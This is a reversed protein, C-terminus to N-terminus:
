YAPTGISPAQSTQAFQPVNYGAHRGTFFDLDYYANSFLDNSTLDGSNFTYYTSDFNLPISVSSHELSLANEGLDQIYLDVSQGFSEPVCSDMTPTTFEWWHFDMPEVFVAMASGAEFSGDWYGGSLTTYSLYGLAGTLGTGDPYYTFANTKTTTGNSDIIRIDVGGDFSIAPSQVYLMNGTNSLVIAPELGFYVTSSPDFPGGYIEVEAGGVNSGYNPSLYTISVETFETDGSDSNGSDSNGSDTNNTDNTDQSSGSDQSDNIDIDNSDDQDNEDDFLDEQTSTDIIASKLGYSGCGTLLFLLWNLKIFNKM